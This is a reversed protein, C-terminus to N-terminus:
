LLANRGSEPAFSVLELELEPAPQEAAATAADEGALAGPPGPPHPWTAIAPVVIRAPKAQPSAPQSPVARKIWDKISAVAYKFVFVAVLATLAVILVRPFVQSTLQWAQIAAAGGQGLVGVLTIGAALVAGGVTPKQPDDGISKIVLPGLGVLM